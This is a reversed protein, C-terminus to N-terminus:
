EGAKAAKGAKRRIVEDTYKIGKGKYPEPMRLKRIRAATQGVEERDMGSLTLINKEVTAAVGSPLPYVVDHSYGLNMMVNTGQVSVRFGVGNVELSRTFGVTVGQVMNAINARATGWQARDGVNEPDRVTILVGKGGEVDSVTATVAANLSRALTGKPGMVTVLPGDVVVNVKEPIMIPKKGIRSM